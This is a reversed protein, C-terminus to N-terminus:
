ATPSPMAGSPCRLLWGCRRVIVSQEIGRGDGADISALATYGMDSLYTDRFWTLVAESEVEELALVDADLAHIADALGQLEAEPKADDIDENRGSLDPDDIADFLNEVNYTALRIAGAHKLPAEKLGFRVFDYKGAEPQTTPQRSQTLTKPQAASAGSAGLIKPLQAGAAQDHFVTEATSAPQAAPPKLLEVTSLVALAILVIAGAPIMWKKM